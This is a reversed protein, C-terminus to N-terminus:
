GILSERYESPSTGTYKKFAKGFYNSDSYGCRAAISTVTVRPDALLKKAQEMRYETLYQNLTKGTENKFITCAYSASLMIYESIEKTSLYPDDYHARIYERIMYVQTSEPSVETLDRFLADAESELIAHMEPFSFCSSLEFIFNDASASLETPPLHSGRRLEVIISGITYYAARVTHRPFVTNGQLIESLERLAKKAQERDRGRLADTVAQVSLNLDIPTGKTEPQGSIGCITRPPLFFAQELLVAAESYSSYLRIVAPVVAGVAAYYETGAPLCSVLANAADSLDEPTLASQRLIHIVFLGPHKEASIMQLPDHSRLRRIREEAPTLDPAVFSDDSRLQLLITACSSFRVDSGYRDRLYSLEYADKEISPLTLCLALRSATVNDRVSAAERHAMRERCLDISEKVAQEMEHFNLPKEVYRVARLRIAAKLYEKDSYGSMFIFVCDPLFSRVRELMRVGDMRPMRVDSIIIDPSVSSATKLGELGNDAEFVSDIGLATFNLAARLGERTAKEDDVILLTM